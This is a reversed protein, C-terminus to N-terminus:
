AAGTRTLHSPSLMRSSHTLWRSRCAAQWTMVIAYAIGAIRALQRHRHWAQEKMCCASNAAGGGSIVLYAMMRTVSHREISAAPAISRKICVGHRRRRATITTQSTPKDGRRPGARRLIGTEGSAVMLRAYSVGHTATSATERYASCSACDGGFM